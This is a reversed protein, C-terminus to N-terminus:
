LQATPKTPSRPHEGTPRRPVRTVRRKGGAALSVLNQASRHGADQDRVVVFQQAVSELFDEGFRKPVQNHSLGRIRTLCQFQRLLLSPVNNQEVNIHRPAAAQISQLVELAETWPSADDDQAGKGLLVVGEA